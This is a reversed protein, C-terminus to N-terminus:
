GAPLERIRAAVAAAGREGMVITYHNTDAVEEIPLQPLRRAWGALAAPSYLGPTQDQLGRPATMLRAPHALEDISAVVAASGYLEVSDARMAEVSTRPRLRPPAGDLDYDIYANLTAPWDHAFAPHARWFARYDEHSAFTMALRDAAPGLAATTDDLTVDPPLQLTLGGDVLLLASVRDPFLHATVLAVFAGMSHGVLPAREVALADLTDIIDRAHRPMGYPGPLHNSRGRGRLDPAILRRDPLAAAVEGWALSSATIGHIAVVPAGAGWETVALTVPREM